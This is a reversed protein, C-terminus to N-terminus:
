VNGVLIKSGKIYGPAGSNKRTYISEMFSFSSKRTLNIEEDCSSPRYSVYVVDTTINDIVFESSNSSLASFFVKYHVELPVNDCSCDTSNFITELFTGASSTINIETNNTGSHM